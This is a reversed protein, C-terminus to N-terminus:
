ENIRTAKKQGIGLVITLMAMSRKKDDVTVFLPYLSFEFAPQIKNFEKVKLKIGATLGLYVSHFFAKGSENYIEGGSSHPPPTMMWWSSEGTTKSWPYAGLIGGIYYQQYSENKSQLHYFMRSYISVGNHQLEKQSHGGLATPDSEYTENFLFYGVGPFVSFKKATGIQFPIEAFLHIRNRTLQHIDGRESFDMKFFMPLGVGINLYPEQAIAFTSFLLFFILLRVSKM